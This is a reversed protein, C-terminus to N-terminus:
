PSVSGEKSTSCVIGAHPGQYINHAERGQWHSVTSEKRIWSHQADGRFESVSNPDM